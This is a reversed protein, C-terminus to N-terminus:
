VQPDPVVTLECDPFYGRITFAERKERALLYGKFGSRFANSSITKKLDKRPQGTLAYGIVKGKKNYFHLIKPRRNEKKQFIWGGVKVYRKHGSIISIEDIGGQCQIRSRSSVPQGIIENADKILPNGFISWNKEAPRKAISLAWDASPFISSIQSQDKIGLELSLAAIYRDFLESQKSHTANLQHPFLLIPVFMLAAIIRAPYCRLGEAIMPAYLVLLAIWAMLAPTQYRSSLAQELGFPLRGGATCFATGGIYLIYTLVALQLSAKSSQFLNHRLFIIASAILFLGAFQPVALKKVTMHCIPGGIYILLYQVVGVPDSIINDIFSGRQDRFHYNNFYLTIVLISLLFLIVIQQRKMKLIFALLTMLPLVLISNVMSGASIVGFICAIFFFWGSGKSDNSAKHLFFFSILPLLQSLFFQSQFGCTFNEAQIWSFSLMLIILSLIRRTSKDKEEPIREILFLLLFYSSLCVLLYNIVILFWGSGKFWSLDIWFFLRTLIIRHDNHQIWWSAWDGSKVKDYFEIYGNWMDWYPVPSYSNFAGIVALAIYTLAGLFFIFVAGKEALNFM